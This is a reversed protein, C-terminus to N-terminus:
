EIRLVKGSQGKYQYFFDFELYEIEIYSFQQRFRADEKIGITVIGQEAHFDIVYFAQASEDKHKLKINFVSGTDALNKLIVKLDYVNIDLEFQM